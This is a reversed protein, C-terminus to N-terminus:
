VDFLYRKSEDSFKNLSPLMNFEVLYKLLEDHDLSQVGKEKLTNIVKVSKGLDNIVMYYLLLDEKEQTDFTNIIFERLENFKEKTLKNPGTQIECFKEYRNDKLYHYLLVSLITRDFEKLYDKPTGDFLYNGYTKVNPKDFGEPTFHIEGILDMVEPYKKIIRKIINLEYTDLDHLNERENSVHIAKKLVDRLNNLPELETEAYFDKDFWKMREANDPRGYVVKDINRSTYKGYEGNTTLAPMTKMNRPIWFVIATAYHLAEREWWFQEDYDFSRDDFEREPVYVVGDYGLEELIKIAEPRWSEVDLSRPTPGALFIGKSEKIVPEDSYNVKM